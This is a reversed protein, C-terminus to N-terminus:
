LPSKKPEGDRRPYERPTSRAKDLVVIKGTPTDITLEHQAHLKHLATKAAALEEDARQGKILFVRGGVEVLPVTLEAIVSMPGVARAVAAGYRERHEPSRGAAEARIDLVTINPIGLEEAVRRLFAAKKGTAELLTVEMSPMVIALPVGPLGGGSGVDIIRSGEALAEEMVPFLTLSDFIHRVWAAAPDTVATLNFQENTELLMALYRGLMEVEGDVFEIGRERCLSLFEETPALRDKM